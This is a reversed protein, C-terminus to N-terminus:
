AVSEGRTAVRGFLIENFCFADWVSVCDCCWLGLPCHPLQDVWSQEGSVHFSLLLSPPSPTPVEYSSSITYTQQITPGILVYSICLLCSVSQTLTLIATALGFGLSSNSHSWMHALVGEHDRGELVKNSNTLCVCMCALVPSSPAHSCGNAWDMRIPWKLRSILQADTRSPFVVSPDLYVCLAYLFDEEGCFWVTM